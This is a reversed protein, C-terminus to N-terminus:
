DYILLTNNTFKEAPIKMTNYINIACAQSM